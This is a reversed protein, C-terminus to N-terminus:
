DHRNLGKKTNRYSFFSLRWYGFSVRMSVESLRGETGSFAGYLRQFFLWYVQGLLSGVDGSGAESSSFVWADRLCDPRIDCGCLLM